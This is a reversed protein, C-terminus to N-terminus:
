ESQEEFQHLSEAKALVLHLLHPKGPIKKKELFYDVVQRSVYEDVIKQRKGTYLWENMISLKM